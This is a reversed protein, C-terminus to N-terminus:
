REGHRQRPLVTLNNLSLAESLCLNSPLHRCPLETVKFRTTQSGAQTHCISSRYCALRVHSMWRSEAFLGINSRSDKLTLTAALSHSILIFGWHASSNRQMAPRWLGVNADGWFLIVAIIWTGQCAFYFGTANILDPEFFSCKIPKSTVYLTNFNLM